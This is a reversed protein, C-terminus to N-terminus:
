NDSKSICNMILYISHALYISHVSYNLIFNDTMVYRPFMRRTDDIGRKTRSSCYGPINNLLYDPMTSIGKKEKEKVDKERHNEVALRVRYGGLAPFTKLM